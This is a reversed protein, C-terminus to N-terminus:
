WKLQVFGAEIHMEGEFDGGLVGMNRAMQFALEFREQQIMVMIVEEVPPMKIVFISNNKDVVFCRDEGCAIVCPGDLQDFKMIIAREFLQYVEIVGTSKQVGIINPYICDIITPPDSWPIDTSFPGIVKTFV